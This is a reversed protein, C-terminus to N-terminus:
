SRLSHTYHSKNLFYFVFSMFYSVFYIILIVFTITHLGGRLFGYFDYEFSVRGDQIHLFVNIIYFISYLFVPLIGVITDRFHFSHKKEFVVFSVVSLVPVVFHFFLNSNQYFFWFPYSSSPVLFFATVLFTLSVGVTGMLKLLSVFHSFKEQKRLLVRRSNLCYFLSAIGMLINSDVTFFKFMEFKNASLMQYDSMFHIDFFMCILGFLVFLFIMINIMISVRIKKM